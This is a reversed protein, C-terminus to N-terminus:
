PGPGGTRQRVTLLRDIPIDRMIQGKGNPWIVELRDIKSCAGLGFHLRADHQSLYSGASARHRILMRGGLTIKVIAGIADRNPAHGVLSVQLWHRGRRPTDNRLLTPRANLNAVLLDIDGDNDFDGRAVGRSVFAADATVDRTTTPRGDRQASAAPATTVDTFGGRGNNIFLGNPQAELLCASGNAIYLDLWTDLDLDATAAGWSHYHIMHASIGSRTALDEFMGDGMYRYLCCLNMDPVVIDFHGDGDYDAVEVAMAATADGTEGYAVGALLAENAFTEDGKNRFLFNEMADNSVFVDVFGDNDYDITGVGMARGVPKIMVGAERTVDTFTGDPNGRFLRDQQGKYALPSRVGDATHKDQPPPVYTLYNGVYLDLRGDQNFDFFVAGVSFAPDDVGAAKAVDTFTGDGNNRYLCNPGRNTVYIDADGDGDYDAAVVAMGYAPKAIGAKETVDEFTGDRRNRYLRDTAAALRQRTKADLGPDSLGPQWCGNVLYIDIWGDGDYDVFGCGVGTAEVINSMVGDGVTQVFRIGASTTVDTLSVPPATKPGAVAFSALMATITFIHSWAFM